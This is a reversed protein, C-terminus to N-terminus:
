CKRKLALIGGMTIVPVMVMVIEVCVSEREDQDRISDFGLGLVFGLDTVTMEPREDNM